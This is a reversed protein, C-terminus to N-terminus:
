PMPALMQHGFLSWPYSSGSWPMSTVKITGAPKVATDLPRNIPM